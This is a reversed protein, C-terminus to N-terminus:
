SFLGQPLFIACALWFITQTLAIVTGILTNRGIGQPELNQNMAPLFVDQYFSQTRAQRKIRVGTALTDSTKGLDESNIPVIDGQKGGHGHRSIKNDMRPGVPDKKLSGIKRVNITGNYFTFNPLINNNSYTEYSALPSDPQNFDDKNWVFEEDVERRRRGAPTVPIPPGLSALLWWIASSITGYAGSKVTQQFAFTDSLMFNWVTIINLNTDYEDGRIFAWINGLLIWATLNAVWKIWIGILSRLQIIPSAFHTEYAKVFDTGENDGFITPEVPLFLLIVLLFLSWKRTILVMLEGIILYSSCSVKLLIVKLSSKGWNESLDM